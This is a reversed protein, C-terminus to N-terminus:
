GSGLARLLRPPAFWLLVGAGPAPRDVELCAVAGKKMDVAAHGAEGALLSAVLGSMQPEHGVLAVAGAGSGAGPARLAALVRAPLAASELPPFPRPAPWGAEQELIAATRWARVLRSGLVVDVAPALKVLGRAALRFREEGRPTLPRDRDDPWRRPDRAFASAHRVVYLIM